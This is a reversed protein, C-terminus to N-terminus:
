SNLDTRQLRVHEHAKLAESTFSDLSRFIPVLGGQLSSSAADHLLKMAGKHKIREEALKQRMSELDVKLVELPLVGSDSPVVSLGTKDSIVDSNPNLKGKDMHQTTKLNEQYEKMLSEAIIRQRMEEDQKEWLQHLTTAFANMANAVKAEAINEMAQHWDNCIIFIPPAQLRGPSYPTPGDPTEEPEYRLCQLLWGNLSEVYSKQFFIWDKFHRCWSHLERELDATARSSSDTQFGTNAKLKRMKSEVIAHFQKRHCKLMAKWMRILGLILIAIQPKLEEDRLKQIRTSIADIAKISVDLKTLLRRIHDQAAYIKTSEAGNDDLLQLRKRQKEYMLRLREEEKVEKYLKKEWAYLKDLTSSLNCAKVNVDNGVDEFYSKALKVTRSALKVSKRSLLDQFSLSPAILHLIRSIIVRLLGPQFPMKGVELIVAVEKGCGSAYEFEDRIEGVADRLDRTAHPSLTTFSNSSDTQKSIEEVNFTVGRRRRMSDEDVSKSVTTSTSSKEDTFNISGTMGRSPSRDVWSAGKSHPPSISPKASRDSYQSPLSTKETEESNSSSESKHLPVSGSSNESKDWPVSKSSSESNKRSPIMRSPPSSEGSKKRSEANNMGKSSFTRQGSRKKAEVDTKKERLVEKYVESETEEELDPIGERERVENSDPSSSNSLHGYTGSSYYSPYGNDFVDFPNFFDWASAVPPPPPPTEEPRSAKASEDSVRVPSSTPFYGYNRGYAAPINWFSDSYGSSPEAAPEQVVTRMESVQKKMYNVNSYSSYNWPNLGHVGWNYQDTYPEAYSRPSQPYPYQMGGGFGDGGFNWRPYESNIGENSHSSEGDGNEKDKHLSRGQKRSSPEFDNDGDDDSSSSIQLHSGDEDHLHSEDSDDDIKKKSNPPLILSPSSVPSSSSSSRTYTILEEDVFKRLADGVDKLSRFYSVHAAALTYRHNAAARILERRERCRVVLPLDETKSGSCGM